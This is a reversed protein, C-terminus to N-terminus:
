RNKHNLYQNISIEDMVNNEVRKRHKEETNKRIEIIKEFKKVEVHADTLKVQKAEMDNRAKQVLKQLENIQRNLKEIYAAQEKIKEIPTTSLIYHDYSVEANEKKRLLSYLETAIKEFSDMSQHYAKQAVKKENERIDMIKTLALTATM